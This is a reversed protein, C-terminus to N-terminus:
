AFVKVPKFLEHSYQFTCPDSSSVNISAFGSPAHDCDYNLVSYESGVDGSGVHLNLSTNSLEVCNSVSINPIQGNQVDLTV